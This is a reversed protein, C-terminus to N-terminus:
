KQEKRPAKSGFGSLIADLVAYEAEDPHRGLGLGRCLGRLTMASM